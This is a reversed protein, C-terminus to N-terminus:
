INNRKAKEYVEMINTYFNKLSLKDVSEIMNKVMVSYYTDYNDFIQCIKKLFEEKKEYFFGNQGDVILETLNSDYKALIIKKSAMAELYTLGQTESVSANVFVHGISYYFDIDSYPVAGIFKTKDAVGLEVAKKKFHDIDPGNGVIVFYVDNRIECLDKYNELLEDIGKEKAVRGLSLMIKADSPINHQEFFEKKRNEDVQYNIFRTTDIGTPIVGIYKSVGIKRLYNLTKYSPSIVVNAKDCTALSYERIIWKSTRDMFGKTIYYTYDEYMTHYTYVLAAKSHRKYLYAIQAISFDSNVHLIDADIGKLIKMVKKNTISALIYNYLSKLRIGPVRIVNNKFTVKKSFPNTTVVYVNHGNEKLIRSLTTVSTAVGNLEPEYTDSFLIINM